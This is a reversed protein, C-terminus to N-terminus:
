PKKEALAEIAFAIDKATKKARYIAWRSRAIAACEAYAERKAQECLRSALAIVAIKVAAAEDNATVLGAIANADVEVDPPITRSALILASLIRKEYDAQAVAKADDIALYEQASDDDDSTPAEGPMWYSASEFDFRIYYQCMDTGHGLWANGDPGDPQDWALPRVSVVRRLEAIEDSM